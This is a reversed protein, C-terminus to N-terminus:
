LVREASTVVNDLVVMALPRGSSARPEIMIAETNIRSEEGNKLTIRVEYPDKVLMAAALRSGNSGNKKFDFAKLGKGNRGQREFDVVLSRKGYGRESILLLEGEDEVQTALLIHAGEALAMGKVGGAVRGTQPVDEGAFCIAMANNSVMLVNSGPRMIEVGILKDGPKVSMGQVRSKRTQYEVTATRKAMGNQTYFLIDGESPLSEEAFLQVVTEGKELGGCLNALPVGRDKWKADPLADVAIWAAQGLSTFALLRSTDVTQIVWSLADGGEATQRQYTKMAIRKAYGSQSVVVVCPQPESAAPPPPPTEAEAQQLILTRRPIAVRKRIDLMEKRIVGILKKESKLIGELQSILELIDNYEKRLADIELATLRRLPMDLIAQAQIESLAFTQRLTDRAEKVSKSSRIIKIVRDINDVAIIYGELIHARRRAEELEYRTRRTVVDKQHTIYAAVIERLGLQVPKGNQIVVMNIGFTVQMDSYRYLYHLVCQPDVDKKLEIVARMGDRDSEDRVDYIGGLIDKKEESLKSIKELLAAKKVQYPVETIVIAQRSTGVKEIHCKARVLVRGRGTRYAEELGTGPVMIGGTPFDPGPLKQMLEALTIRPNEMQALVADIAEAPNHPPINTALGVAIGSAGNILLNPIRSPLVDPEKLT